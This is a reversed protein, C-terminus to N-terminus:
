ANGVFNGLGYVAGTAGVIADRSVSAVPDAVALAAGEVKHAVSLKPPALCLGDAVQISNTQLKDLSSEIDSIIRDGQYKLYIDSFGHGLPSDGNQLEIHTNPPMIKGFPARGIVGAIVKDTDSTLWDGGGAVRGSPTAVSYVGISETPVGGAKGAVTDYFSNAYFNGQSHAVLLLKQTAVKESAAKLMEILDYDRVTEDDFYKQYAAMLLDGVGALHSPNLLYQYNIEQNNWNFGLIDQLAIMNAKAEKDGTFVGNITAITYGTRSCSDHTGSAFSFIPILLFGLILLTRAKM